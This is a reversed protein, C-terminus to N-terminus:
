KTVATAFLLHADLWEVGSPVAVKGDYHVAISFDQCSPLRLDVEVPDSGPELKTQWVTKGAAQFSVQLKARSNPLPVLTGRLTAGQRVAAPLDYTASSLAPLRLAYQFVQGGALGVDRLVPKSGAGVLGLSSTRTPRTLWVTGSTRRRLYVIRNLGIELEGLVPHQIQFQSNKINLTKCYFISGDDLGFEILGSGATADIPQVVFRALQERPVPLIGLLCDVAIDTPRIWILKGPIPSSGLRYLTNPAEAQAPASGDFILSSIESLKLERLGFTSEIQVNGNVYGQILGPWLEGNLLRIGGLSSGAAAGANRMSLLSQLPVVRGGITLQDGRPVLEGKMIGNTTRVVSSAQRAAETIIESCPPQDTQVFRDTLLFGDVGLLQDVLRIQVTKGKLQRMDFAVMRLTAQGTGTASRVIQGEHVLQVALAQPNRAGGILFSLYGKQVTFEPSTLTGTAQGGLAVSPIRQILTNPHSYILKSGCAWTYGTSFPVGSLTTETTNHWSYPFANGTSQWHSPDAEASAPSVIFTKDEFDEVVVDGAKLWAHPPESPKAAHASLGTAFFVLTVIRLMRVM